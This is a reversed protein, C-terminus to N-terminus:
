ADPAGPFGGGGFMAAAAAAMAGLDFGDMPEAETTTQEAAQVVVPPPAAFGFAAMLIPAHAAIVVSAGGAITISELAKRVAESSRSWVVLAAACDRAQAMMAQGADVMRPQKMVFGGMRLMAGLGVYFNRLGLEMADAKTAATSPRGPGKPERETALAAAEAAMDAVTAAAPKPKARSPRQRKPKAASSGRPARPKSARTGSPSPTPTPAETTGATFTDPTTSGHVLNDM